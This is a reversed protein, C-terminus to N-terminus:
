KLRRAIAEVVNITVANGALKYLQTDSIHGTLKYYWEDPFGQLRFCEMPTLRRVKKNYTKEVVLNDKQVSTLTNTNGDKRPEIQQEVKGDKGYRGRQAVIYSDTGVITKTIKGHNERVTPAIGNPNYVNGASHGSPVTNGIVDLKDIKEESNVMYLGTKAGLGGAKGALTCSSGEPNYVRYGQRGGIIQDLDAGSDRSIPFVEPRSTGRLHGVIFIRERNQPTPREETSFDKSNLLEWQCDYGLEDLTQLIKKFTEGNAHNLLGKVNELFLIQPLKERVIRAIEFFMTGRTDEFGKRNGALSFSQCPFGGCLIDFDPLDGPEIETVDSAFWEGIPEHIINYAKQANKDKECWGVPEHGARTMGERFGGIGAFLDFFKM